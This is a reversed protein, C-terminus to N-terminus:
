QRLSANFRNAWDAAGAVGKGITMGMTPDGTLAASLAGGAPVAVAALFTMVKDFWEGLPNEDVTVGTPMNKIVEAYLQLAAPDYPASLQRGLLIDNQNQAPITEYIGRMRIQLVAQKHLGEFIAGSTQTGTPLFPTFGGPSGIFNYVSATGNWVKSPTKWSKPNALCAASQDEDTADISEIGVWGRQDVYYAFDTLNEPDMVAVQYVGKQANWQRTGPLNMVDQSSNAPLQFMYMDNLIAPVEGAVYDGTFVSLMKHPKQDFNTNMRYVTCLGQQYYPNTMDIVEYAFGICRIATPNNGGPWPFYDCFPSYPLLGKKGPNLPTWNTAPFGTATANSKPYLDFNTGTRVNAGIMLQGAYIDTQHDDWATNGASELIGYQNYLFTPGLLPYGLTPLIGLNLNWTQGDAVTLGFTTADVTLTEDIERVISRGEFSDPIGVCPVGDNDHYPDVAKVLWPQSQPKLGASMAAKRLKRYGSELNEQLTNEAM